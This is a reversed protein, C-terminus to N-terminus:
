RDQKLGKRADYSYTHLVADFINPSAPKPQGAIRPRKEARLKGSNDEWEPQSMEALKDELHDLEPNICLCKYIDVDEGKLLRQSYQMRQQLVMAAQAYWNIFYEANTVSKPYRDLYLVNPGQVKGNAACPNMRIRGKHEQKWDRLPGRLGAGMGVADYDLRRCGHDVAIHSAHKATESLTWEESGKWMDIRYLEPGSRLALANWDAGTDAADLGATSFAGRFEPRREWLQVCKRLMHYPLIKRAASADDPMGEWIHAYRLPDTREFERRLEDEVKPFWPNDYWNIKKVYRDHQFFDGSVFDKYIPDYRNKPNFTAFLQSSEDDRFVTPYLLERSRVSMMHAEEVWCRTVGEWGKIDEESVTSMGHFRFYSGTVLNTIQNHTVNFWPRLGLKDIWKVIAPKASDDLSSLHERVCYIVHKEQHAQIVLAKSVAQTKGSSRGGYM